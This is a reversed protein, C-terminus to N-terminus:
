GEYFTSTPLYRSFNPTSILQQIWRAEGVISALSFGSHGPGQNQQQLVSVPIFTYLKTAETTQRRHVQVNALASLVEARAENKNAHQYAVLSKNCCNFANDYEGQRLYM